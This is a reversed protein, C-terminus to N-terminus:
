EPSGALQEALCTVDAATVTGDHNCDAGCTPAAPRNFAATCMASIDGVDLVNNCDADGPLPIGQTPTV